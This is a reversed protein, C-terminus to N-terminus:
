LGQKLKRLCVTWCIIHWGADGKRAGWGWDEKEIHFSPVSGAEPSEKRRVRQEMQTSGRPLLQLRM